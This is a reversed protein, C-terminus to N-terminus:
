VVVGRLHEAAQEPPVPNILCNSGWEFGAPKTQRPFVEVHWHYHDLAGARLPATHILWNYSPKATGREIKRVVARLVGAMEGLADAPLSEFHSAHDKPLLWVEFPFRSAFPTFALFRESERVMRRGDDSERRIMECFVCRGHSRFFSEAGALEERVASPVFPTAVMQSHGHELSAGAAAGVNKFVLGYELRPDARAALLRAQYVALLERVNEVSLHGAWREHQPCDIIVEHMGAAPVSSFFDDGTPDASVDRLAPYMNPVVRVRWDPGNPPSGPPRLAFVEVTTQDEQGACFPCDPDPPTESEPGIGYPRAARETAVIVPRSTVPDFRIEPFPLPRPVFAPTEM